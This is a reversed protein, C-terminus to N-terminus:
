AEQQILVPHDEPEPGKPGQTVEKADGLDIVEAEPAQQYDKNM